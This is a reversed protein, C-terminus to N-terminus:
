QTAAKPDTGFRNDGRIGETCAFVFNVIPLLLWWGSHDTDHMRRIGGAVAPVLVALSYINALIGPGGMLGEVFGLVFSIIFNFLVFMWYETRRARGSFVAYNKLVALYWGFGSISKNGPTTTQSREWLPAQMPPTSRAVPIPPPTMGAPVLDEIDRAPTWNGLGETWVLVDAQLKGSAFMAKFEPEQIPGNQQGGQVYFWQRM